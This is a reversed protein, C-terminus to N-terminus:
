KNNFKEMIIKYQRDIINDVKIVDRYIEDIERECEAIFMEYESDNKFKDGYKKRLHYEEVKGAIYAVIIVAVAFLVIIGVINLM